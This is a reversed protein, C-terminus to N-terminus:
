ERGVKLAEDIHCKSAYVFKEAEILIWNQDHYKDMKELKELAEIAAKLDDIARKAYSRKTEEM